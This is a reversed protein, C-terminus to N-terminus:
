MYGKEILDDLVYQQMMVAPASSWLEYGSHANSFQSLTTKSFENDTPDLIEEVWTLVPMSMMNDVIPQMYSGIDNLEGRLKPGNTRRVYDVFKLDEIMQVPDSSLQRTVTADDVESAARFMCNLMYNITPVDLECTFSGWWDQTPAIGIVPDGIPLVIHPQQAKFSLFNAAYGRHESCIFSKNRPPYGKWSPLMSQLINMYNATNAARREVKSHDVLMIPTKSPVGRWITNGQKYQAIALEIKPLYSELNIRKKSTIKDRYKERETDSTGNVDETIEHIKM